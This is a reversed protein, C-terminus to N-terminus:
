FEWKINEGDRISLLRNLNKIMTKSVKIQLFVALAFAIGNAKIEEDREKIKLGSENKYFDIIAHGLEHLLIFNLDVPNYKTFRKVFVVPSNEIYLADHKNAEEPLGIIKAKELTEAVRFEVGFNNIAFSRIKKPIRTKNM